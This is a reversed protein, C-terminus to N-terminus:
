NGVREDGARYCISWSCLRDEREEGMGQTSVSGGSVDLSSKESEVGQGRAWGWEQM